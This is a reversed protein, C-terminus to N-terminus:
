QCYKAGFSQKSLNRYKEGMKSGGSDRWWGSSDKFASTSRGNNCKVIYIIHGDSSKYGGNYIKKMGGSQSSSSSRNSSKSRSSSSSTSSSNSQQSNSYNGSSSRRNNHKDIFSNVEDVARSSLGSTYGANISKNYGRKLKNLDIEKAQVRNVTFIFFCVALLLISPVIKNNPLYNMKRGILLHMISQM